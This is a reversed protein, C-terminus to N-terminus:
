TKMRILACKMRNPRFREWCPQRLEEVLCTPDNNFVDLHVPFYYLVVTDRRGNDTSQQNELQNKSREKIGGLFGGMTKEDFPNFLYFVNGDEPMLDIINGQIITVNDFGSFVDRAFEAMEEDLEVGIMRNRYGRNLWWAIVRGKGCGVDVLVDDPQIRYQRFIYKLASVDTPVHGYAGAQSYRSPIREPGLSMGAFRMDLIRNKRRRVANHFKNPWRGLPTRFLRVISSVRPIM